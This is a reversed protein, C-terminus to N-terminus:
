EKVKNDAETLIDSVSSLNALSSSMSISSQVQALAHGLITSNVSLKNVGCSSEMEPSPTRPASCNAISISSALVLSETRSSLDKRKSFTFSNSDFSSFTSVDFNDSRLQLTQLETFALEQRFWKDVDDDDDVQVKNTRLDLPCDDASEVLLKEAEIDFTSFSSHPQDTSSIDYPLPYHLYTATPSTYLNSVWEKVDPSSYYTSAQFQQNQFLSINTTTYTTPERTKTEKKSKKVKEGVRIMAINVPNALCTQLRCMQCWGRPRPPCVMGSGENICPPYQLRQHFSRKLFQKDAECMKVGYHQGSSSKVKCIACTLEMNLPTTTNSSIAQRWISYITPYTVSLWTEPESYQTYGKNEM